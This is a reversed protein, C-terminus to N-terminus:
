GSNLGARFRSKIEPPSILPVILEVDTGQELRARISIQSNINIARERMGLIGFGAADEEKIGQGNDTVHIVLNDADFVMSINVAKAHSHKIANSIAEQVIRYIGIERDPDLKVVEGTCTFTFECDPDTNNYTNIMEALAMKLGLVDLIEPRLRKVISRGTAYLQMSSKLILETLELISRKSESDKQKSVITAINGAFLKISILTANLVDHIEAAVAKRDNETVTTMKHLLARNESAAIELKRFAKKLQINKTLWGQFALMSLILFVDSIVALLINLLPGSLAPFVPLAVVAYIGTDKLKEFAFVKKLGDVPDQGSVVGAAEGSTISLLSPDDLAVNKEDANPFKILVRNKDRLTSTANPGLSISSYYPMFFDGATLNIVLVGGFKGDPGNFRRAIHIGKKGSATGDEVNSIYLDGGAKLGIFYPRSNLDTGNKNTIGLRRIGDAGILTFSAIGPVRSQQNKLKKYIQDNRPSPGIPGNFDNWTMDEMTNKLIFDALFFGFGDHEAILHAYTSARDVLRDKTKIYSDVGFYLLLIAISFTFLWAGMLVIKLRYRSMEIKSNLLSLSIM